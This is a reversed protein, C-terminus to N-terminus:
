AAVVRQPECARMVALVSDVGPRAAVVRVIAIDLGEALSRFAAAAGDAKGFYGVMLLLEAPFADALEDLPAGNAKMEDLKALETAFGMREFHARYGRDRRGGMAYGMTAKALGRRAADVDDDVCVRIYEVVRVEAPDRGSVAAGEAVRERSWAVQEASCWNLSVGDAIEGGLRIMEPGLAGLVIPTRQPPDIGLRVGRLTVADTDM